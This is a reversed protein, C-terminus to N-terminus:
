KELMKKPRKKHKKRKDSERLMSIYEDAILNGAMYDLSDSGLRDIEDGFIKTLMQEKKIPSIENSEVLILAKQYDTNILRKGYCREGKILKNDYAKEADSKMNELTSRGSGFNSPSYKKTILSRVIAKAEKTTVKAKFGNAFLAM